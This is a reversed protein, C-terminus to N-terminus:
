CSTSRRAWRISTPAATSWPGSAWRGARPEHLAAHRAPRRDDDARRRGARRGHRLRRGLPRRPPRAAPQGAQRRPPHDGPRPRLRTGRGGPHGAPRRHSYFNRSRISAASTEGRSVDPPGPTPSAGATPTAACPRSGARCSSIPWSASTSRTRIPRRQPRDTPPPRAPPETHTEGNLGDRLEAILDALSGGEIFQMAFYPVDDVLGVAYVPVIRPHQLWGAVQAELQFRQLARRTSPPPWRCSRSPSGAGWRSRSPRTSSGWAAAASRASSASTAFPGSRPRKPITGGRRSGPRSITVSSPWTRIPPILWRLKVAWAPHEAALKEIDIVEGGLIRQECEELLSWLRSSIM